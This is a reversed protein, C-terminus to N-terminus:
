SAAQESQGRSSIAGVIERNVGLSENFLISVGNITQEEDLEPKNQSGIWDPQRCFNTFKM